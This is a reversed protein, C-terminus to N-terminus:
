SLEDVVVVLLREPGQVGLSLSLEIDATRSPGTVLSAYGGGPRLAHSRLAAGTETLSPVISDTRVVVVNTKSLMGVVRDELTEEALMVSGTEAVGLRALSVGLPADRVAEIGAPTSWAVGRRDLAETLTPAAAVLEAAVVLAPAGVEDKVEGLFAAAAEADAVREVRVGLPQLRSAFRAVLGDTNAETRATEDTKEAISV